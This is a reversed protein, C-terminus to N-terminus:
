PKVRDLREIEAVILAGARILDRRRTKPKLWLRGWSKPWLLAVVAAAGHPTDRFLNASCVREGHDLSGLFAYTAAAQALSGDIHEDDHDRSWGEGGLHRAEQQRKREAIIDDIATM